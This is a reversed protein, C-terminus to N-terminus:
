PKCEECPEYGAEIIQKRQNNSLKKNKESIRAVSSCWEHHFKKTNTNLVYTKVDSPTDSEDEQPLETANNGDTYDPSAQTNWSITKGDSYAIITGQLDTRYLSIKRDELKKIVEKHPHGYSNDKGCQIVAYDPAVAELFEDSSSSNSGHHGVKLVDAKIDIGSAIIDQEALAEADGVMVFSNGGYILKIGVSWNNLNDGYDQVPSLITFEADGLQYTDKPKAKTIKLGKEEIADLMDEFVRSTHVIEPMIMKGIDFGKIVKDMSGIHDEHPHTAIVYELKEVEEGELYAILDEADDRNGADILMFHGDAEVLICDAQGVDIFSVKLKTNEDNEITEGINSAGFHDAAKCGTFTLIAIIILGIYLRIKKM